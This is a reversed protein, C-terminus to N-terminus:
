ATPHYQPRAEARFWGTLMWAVIPLLIAYGFVGILQLRMNSVLPGILGALCLAGTVLLWHRLRNSTKHTPLAGAACLLALGLLFDWGFLEIAYTVSPWVMGYKGAARGATLEVLHVGMTAFAFMACFCLALTAWIRQAAAACAHLAVFLSLLPLASAITLLEMIALVPDGIPKSLGSQEMGIALVVAYTIGVVLVATASRSGLETATM